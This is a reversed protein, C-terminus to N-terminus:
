AVRGSETVLSLCSLTTLQSQERATRWGTRTSDGMHWSRSKVMYQIKDDNKGTVSKDLVHLVEALSISDIHRCRQVLRAAEYFTAQSSRQSSMSTISGQIPDTLLTLVLLRHHHMVPCAKGVIAPPSYGTHRQTVQSPGAQTPISISSALTHNKPRQFAPVRPM